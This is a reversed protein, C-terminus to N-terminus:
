ARWHRKLVCFSSLPHPPPREDMETSACGPEPGPVPEDRARALTGGATVIVDVKLAVLEAALAPLAPLREPEFRGEADRYEIV